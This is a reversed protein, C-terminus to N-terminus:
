DMTDITRHKPALRLKKRRLSSELQVSPFYLWMRLNVIISKTRPIRHWTPYHSQIMMYIVLLMARRRLRQNVWQEHCLVRQQPLSLLSTRLFTQLFRCYEFDIQGSNSLESGGNGVRSQVYLRPQRTLTTVCHIITGPVKSRPIRRRRQRQRQYLYPKVFDRLIWKSLRHWRTVKIHTARIGM